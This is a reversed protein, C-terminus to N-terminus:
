SKFAINAIFDYVKETGDNMTLKATFKGDNNETKLIVYEISGDSKSTFRYEAGSIVVKALPQGSDNKGPCFYIRKFGDQGTFETIFTKVM